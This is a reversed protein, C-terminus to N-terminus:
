KGCEGMANPILERYKGAVLRGLTEYSRHERVYKPGRQRMEAAMAPDQMVKMIAEAFADATYPVCIGAKSEGLVKAQDPQDNAVAPIGMALYEIVKTPSASDLLYSPRFPSLGVEAAKVYQWAQESPLWGTKLVAHDVGLKVAQEHLWKRDIDEPAEGALVLLLDPFRPLVIQIVEFLFDIRRARDLTGLYVIVRKGVLRADNSSMVALSTIRDMDAGMPVATMQSFAIGEAAVDDRMRDSQVFVHTARPLVYSYLLWKGLHGKIAVFLFRVLGLKLGQLRALDISGESMPYSMWYFFPLNLWRARWLAPIAFFVMDRVQIADYADQRMRLLTRLNHWLSRLLNKMRGASRPCVFIDGAPWEPMVEVPGVKAAQAVMDSCVGHLPLTTGFLVSVDARYTPFGDPIFHLLRLPRNTM